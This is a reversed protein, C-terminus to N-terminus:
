PFSQGLDKSAGKLLQGQWRAVQGRVTQSTLPNNRSTALLTSLDGWPVHTLDEPVWFFLSCAGGPAQFGKTGVVRQKGSALQGPVLCTPMDKSGM